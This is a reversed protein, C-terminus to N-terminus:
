VISWKSNHNIIMTKVKLGIRLGELFEMQFNFVLINRCNKIYMLMCCTITSKLSDELMRELNEFCCELLQKIGLQNLIIMILNLFFDKMHMHKDKFSMLNCNLLSLKSNKAAKLVTIKQKVFLKYIFLHIRNNKLLHVIFIQVIYKNLDQWFSKSQVFIQM